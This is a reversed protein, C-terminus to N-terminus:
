LFMKHLLFDPFYGVLCGRDKALTLCAPIKKGVRRDGGM